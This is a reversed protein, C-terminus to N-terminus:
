RVRRCKYTNTAIWWCEYGNISVDDGSPAAYSIDGPQSTTPAPFVPVPKMPMGTPARTLSPSQNVELKGTQARLGAVANELVDLRSEERHHHANLWDMFAPDTLHSELRREIADVKRAYEEHDRQNCLQVLPTQEPRTQIEKGAIGTKFMLTLAIAMVGLGMAAMTHKLM